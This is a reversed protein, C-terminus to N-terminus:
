WEFLWCWRLLFAMVLTAFRKVNGETLARGFRQDTMFHYSMEQCRYLTKRQLCGFLTFRQISTLSTIFINSPQHAAFGELM